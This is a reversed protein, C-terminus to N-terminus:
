QKKWEVLEFKGDSRARDSGLGVKELVSWVRGWGAEPLFDGLVRITCALTPKEVYDVINIASYPGKPGNLHKIRQETGSPESVGLDIYLEDVYVTEAAFNKLGKLIGAPKGPFAKGPYAINMAEKLAAKMCRGEYVLHGDIQKFGNGGEFKRAVTAMLEDAAPREGSEEEMEAATAQALEILSRDDMEMRATLWKMITDPDKPIGGIMKDLVQMEAHYIAWGSETAKDGFINAASM